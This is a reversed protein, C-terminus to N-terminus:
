HIDFIFTSQKTNKLINFPVNNFFEVIKATCLYQSLKVNQDFPHRVPFSDSLLHHCFILYNESM